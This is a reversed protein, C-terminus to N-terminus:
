KYFGNCVELRSSQPEGLKAIAHSGIQTNNENKINERNEINRMFRRFVTIQQIINRNYIQKYQVKIEENNLLKCLNIDEVMGCPCTDIQKKNSSLNANIFIMRNKVSFMDRKESITMEVTPTLYESMEIYSYSMEGGKIGQKNTLYFLAIEDIRTKVLKEFTNTKINRIEQLSETMKFQKMNDMFTSAWDGRTPHKFQLALVYSIM